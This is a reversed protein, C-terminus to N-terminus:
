AVVGQIWKSGGEPYGWWASDQSLAQVFLRDNTDMFRRAGDAVAYASDAPGVIWASKQFRWHTPYKKLHEILSAYDQGPTNLDYTVVYNTM